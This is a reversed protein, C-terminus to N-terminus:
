LLRPGSVFSSPLIRKLGTAPKRSRYDGFLYALSCATISKGTRALKCRHQPKKRALLRLKLSTVQVWDSFILPPASGNRKFQALRQFPISRTPAWLKLCCPQPKRPHFLVALPC